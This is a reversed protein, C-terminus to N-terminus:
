GRTMADRQWDRVVKIDGAPFIDSVQKAKINWQFRTPRAVDIVCGRKMRGWNIQGGGGGPRPCGQLLAM